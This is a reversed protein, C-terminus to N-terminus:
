SRPTHKGLVIEDRRDGDICGLIPREFNPIARDELVIGVKAEARSKRIVFVDRAVAAAPQAPASKKVASM